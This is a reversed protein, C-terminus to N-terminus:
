KKDNSLKHEAEVRKSTADKLDDSPQNPVIPAPVQAVQLPQNEEHEKTAQDREEAAAKVAELRVDVNDAPNPMENYVDEPITNHFAADVRETGPAVKFLQGPLTGFKGLATRYEDETIEERLYAMTADESTQILPPGFKFRSDLKADGSITGQPQDKSEKATSTTM